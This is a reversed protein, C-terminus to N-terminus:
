RYLNYILNVQHRTERNVSHTAFQDADPQQIKPNFIVQFIILLDIILISNIL